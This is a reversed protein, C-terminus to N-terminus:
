HAAEYAERVESSIRGRNSVPMGNEQAWKRIKNANGGGKKGAKKAPKGGVQRGAAVYPALAQRLEALHEPSLDIEYLTGGLAFTTTMAGETTGDLDDVVTVVTKSAM